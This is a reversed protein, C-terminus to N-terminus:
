VKSIYRPGGCTPCKERPRYTELRKFAAAKAEEWEPYNVTEGLIFATLETTLDAGLALGHRGGTTPITLELPLQWDRLGAWVVVPFIADLGSLKVRCRVIGTMYRYHGSSTPYVAPADLLAEFRVSEFAGM